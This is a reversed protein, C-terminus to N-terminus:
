YLLQPWLTIMIYIAASSGQLQPEVLWIVIILVDYDSESTKGFCFKVKAPPIWSGHKHFLCPHRITYLMLLVREDAIKGLTKRKCVATQVKVDLQAQQLHPVFHPLLKASKALYYVCYAWMSHKGGTQSHM